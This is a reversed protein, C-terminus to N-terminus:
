LRFFGAADGIKGGDTVFQKVARQLSTNECWFAPNKNQTKFLWEIYETEDPNEACLSFAGAFRLIKSDPPLLAKLAPSLLWTCTFFAANKWQEFHKACFTKATQYSNKLEAQTLAADSPIHVYLYKEGREIKDGNQVTMTDGGNTCLEFELTGLRFLQMSTQRFTWFARDFGFFGFTELHERCFRTFAGATQYFINKDIGRQQYQPLTKNQAAALYICLWCIGKQQAAINNASFATLSPLNQSNQQAFDELLLDLKSFSKAASSADALLWIENQNQIFFNAFHPSKFFEEIQNQLPLPLSINKCIEALKLNEFLNNEEMYTGFYIGSYSMKGQM